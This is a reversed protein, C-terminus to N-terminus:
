VTGFYSKVPWCAWDADFRSASTTTGPMNYLFSGGQYTM